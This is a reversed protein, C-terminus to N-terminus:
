ASSRRCPRRCASMALPPPISGASISAARSRCAPHYSASAPLPHDLPRRTLRRSRSREWLPTASVGPPHPPWGAAPACRGGGPPAAAARAASGSGSAVSTGRSVSRLWGGRLRVVVATWASCSPVPSSPGSEAILREDLFLPLFWVLAGAGEEGAAGERGDGDVSRRGGPSRRCASVAGDGRTASIAARPL